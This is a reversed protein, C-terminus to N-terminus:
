GYLVVYLVVGLVTGAMYVLYAVRMATKYGALSRGTAMLQNGRIVLFVGLVVGILGVVAHVTTLAYTGNNLNGPFGPLVYLRFSRIMWVIVLVANVCVAATQVWRHAGFSQRRALVVGVTLLVAAVLSLVLTLDPGLTGKTGLFGSSLLFADVTM